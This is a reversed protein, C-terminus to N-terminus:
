LLLLYSHELIGSSQSVESLVNQPGLPMTIYLCALFNYTASREQIKILYKLIWVQFYVM